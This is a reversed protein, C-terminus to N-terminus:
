DMGYFSASFAVASLCSLFLWPVLYFGLLPHAPLFPCPLSLPHRVLVANGGGCGAGLFAREAESLGGRLILLPSAHSFCILLTLFDFLIFVSYSVSLHCTGQPSCCLRSPRDRRMTAAYGPGGSMRGRPSRERRSRTRRGRQRACRPRLIGGRTFRTRPRLTEWPGMGAQDDAPELSGVARGSARFPCHHVSSSGVRRCVRFVPIIYYEISFFERYRKIRLLM